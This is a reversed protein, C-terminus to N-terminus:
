CQVLTPLPLIHISLNKELGQSWPQLELGIGLIRLRSIASNIESPILCNGTFPLVINKTKSKGSKFIYLNFLSYYM